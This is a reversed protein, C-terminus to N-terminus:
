DKDPLSKPLEFHELEEGDEAWVRIRLKGNHTEPVITLECKGLPRVVTGRGCKLDIPQGQKAAM